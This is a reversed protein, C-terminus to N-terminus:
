IVSERMIESCAARLAGKEKGQFCAGQRVGHLGKGQGGIIRFRKEALNLRFLRHFLNLVGSLVHRAQNLHIGFVLSELLGHLPQPFAHILLGFFLTVHVLLHASTQHKVEEKGAVEYITIKKKTRRIIRRKKKKKEDM